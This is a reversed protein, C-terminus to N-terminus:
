RSPATSNVIRGLALASGADAHSVVSASAPHSSTLSGNTGASPARDDSLSQAHSRRRGLGNRRSALKSSVPLLTVYARRCIATEGRRGKRYQSSTSNPRDGIGGSNWRHGGSTVTRALAPHSALRSLVEVRQKSSNSSAVHRSQADALLAAPLCWPSIPSVVPQREPVTFEIAEVPEHKSSILATSACGGAQPIRAQRSNPRMGEVYRRVATRDHIPPGGQSAGTAGKLGAM